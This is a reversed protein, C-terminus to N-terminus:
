QTNLISFIESIVLGVGGERGVAGRGGQWMGMNHFWELSPSGAV